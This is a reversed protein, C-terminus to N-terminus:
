FIYYPIYIIIYIFLSGKERMHLNHISDIIWLYIYEKGM